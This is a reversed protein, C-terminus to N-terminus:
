SGGVAGAGYSAFFNQTQTSQLNLDTFVGLIASIALGLAALLFLGVLM